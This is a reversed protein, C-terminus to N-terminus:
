QESDPLSFSYALTSITQSYVGLLEVFSATDNNKVKLVLKSVAENTKVDRKKVKKTQEM